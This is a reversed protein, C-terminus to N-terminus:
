SGKVFTQRGLNNGSKASRFQIMYMGATIEDLSVRIYSEGSRILSQILEKGSMNYLHYIISEDQPAILLEIYNNAPNPQIEEIIGRTDATSTFQCREAVDPCYTRAALTCDLVYPNRIGSQWQAIQINRDWELSDVPDEYHWECLTERMEGFFSADAVERYTTYFYFIARAANGKHQERPEFERFGLESYEDIDETPKQSQMRNDRFWLDTTRDDVEQLPFNLRAENVRARTPFLHHMDSRANGSGAGKSQPFTHECNIGNISGGMSMDGIPNPSTPSLYLKYGSYVCEVSDNVNYIKSYMEERAPGYDLVQSPRFNLRLKNILASGSEGPFVGEYFQGSALISTLLFFSLFAWRIVIGSNKDL